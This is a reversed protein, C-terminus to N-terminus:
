GQTDDPIQYTVTWLGDGQPTKAIKVNPYKNKPYEILVGRIIQDAQDETLDRTVVTRYAAM